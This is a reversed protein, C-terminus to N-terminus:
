AQGTGHRREGWCRPLINLHQVATAACVRDGGADGVRGCGGHVSAGDDGRLAAVRQEQFIVFSAHPEDAGIVVSAADTALRGPLVRKRLRRLQAAAQAKHKALPRACQLAAVVVVM